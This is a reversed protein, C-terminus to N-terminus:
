RATLTELGARDSEDLRMEVLLLPDKRMWIIENLNQKQCLATSDERDQQGSVVSHHLSLTDLSRTM